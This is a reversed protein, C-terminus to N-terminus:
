ITIEYPCNLRELSITRAEDLYVAGKLLHTVPISISLLMDETSRAVNIVQGAANNREDIFVPAGITIQENQRLKVGIMRTKPKGRYKIRAVIEQGPYCGKQFNVGGVIDLNVSQPVLTEYCEIYIQPLHQCIDLSNWENSSKLEGEVKGHSLMFFRHEDSSHKVIHTGHASSTALETTSKGPAYLGILKLNELPKIEVAARMVFMKLRPLVKDMIACPAILAYATELKLVHFLALMRGKPNCYSSLQHAKADNLHTIDNSLQGQLFHQADDGSVKVICLNSLDYYIPNEPSANM